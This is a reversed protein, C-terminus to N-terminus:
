SGDEKEDKFTEGKIGFLVYGLPPWKYAALLSLRYFIGVLVAILPIWWKMNDVTINLDFIWNMSVFLVLLIFINVTTKISALDDKSFEFKAM